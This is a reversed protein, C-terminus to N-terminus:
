SHTQPVPFLLTRVAPREAKWSSGMQKRAAAGWQLRSQTFPVTTYLSQFSFEQPLLPPPPPAKRPSSRIPLPSTGRHGGATLLKTGPDCATRPSQDWFMAAPISEAERQSKSRKIKEKMEDLTPQSPYLLECLSPQPDYLSPASVAVHRHPPWHEWSSSKLCFCFNSVHMMSNHVESKVLVMKPLIQGFRLNSQETPTWMLAVFGSGPQKSSCSTRQRSEM